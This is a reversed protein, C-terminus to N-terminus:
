RRAEILQALEKAIAVIKGTKLQTSQQWNEETLISAVHTFVELDPEGHHDVFERYKEKAADQVEELRSFEKLVLCGSIRKLAKILGRTLEVDYGVTAPLTIEDVLSLPHESLDSLERPNPRELM